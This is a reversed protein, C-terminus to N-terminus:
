YPYSPGFHITPEHLSYGGTVDGLSVGLFFHSALVLASILAVAYFLVTAIRGTMVSAFRRLRGPGRSLIVVLLCTIVLYSSLDVLLAGPALLYHLSSVQSWCHWPLPFGYAHITPGDPSSLTWQATVWAFLTIGAPVGV